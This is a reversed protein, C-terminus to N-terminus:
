SKRYLATRTPSAAVPINTRENCAMAYESGVGKHDTVWALRVQERPKRAVFKVGVRLARDPDLKGSSTHIHVVLHDLGLNPVRRALFPVACDGTSVVTARHAGQQDVINSLVRGIDIDGTPELLQPIVGVGVDDNHKYPVLAIQLMQTRDGSLLCLSESTRRGM